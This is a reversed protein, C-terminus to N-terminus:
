NREAPIITPTEQLGLDVADMDIYNGGQQEAIKDYAVSAEILRGHEEPLELLIPCWEPREAMKRILHMTRRCYASGDSELLCWFDCSACGTPMKMNKILLSM